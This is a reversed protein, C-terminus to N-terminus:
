EVAVEVDDLYWGPFVTANDSTFQFEIKIVQGLAEVPLEVPTIATWDAFFDVFTLLDPGIQSHDSAKLVRVTGIDNEPETDFIHNFTLTAVVLGPTTLDIEPSRLWIDADNAYDAAINTGFCNVSGGAGSDPGEIPAGREWLTNGNLDNIGTTWNQDTEFDDFFLPREQAVYEQVVYFRRGEEPIPIAHTNTDPTAVMEQGGPVVPWTAPDTSLDESSLLDYVKGTKSGWSFILDSGSTEIGLSLLSSNPASYELSVASIYNASRITVDGNADAVVNTLISITGSIPFTPIAKVVGNVTVNMTGRPNADDVLHYFTIDGLNENALFGGIVLIPDVFGPTQGLVGGQGFRSVLSDNTDEGGGTTLDGRSDSFSGPSVTFASLVTESGSEDVLAQPDNPGTDLEEINNWTVGSIIESGSGDGMMTGLSEASEGVSIHVTAAGIPLGLAVKGLVIM